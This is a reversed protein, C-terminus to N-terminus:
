GQYDGNEQWVLLLIHFVTEFKFNVAGLEFVFLMNFFFVLCPFILVVWIVHRDRRFLDRRKGEVTGCFDQM